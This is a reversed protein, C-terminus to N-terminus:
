GPGRLGDGAGGDLIRHPAPAHKSKEARFTPGRLQYVKGSVACTAESYLQGSQALYWTKTKRTLSKLCRPPAKVTGSGRRLSLRTWWCSATASDSCAPLGKIVEHRVKLAAHGCRSRLWLHRHDMLFISATTKLRSPTRIPVGGARQVIDALEVDLEYGGPARAEARIKGRVILSLEQTLDKWNRLRRKRSPAAGAERRPM